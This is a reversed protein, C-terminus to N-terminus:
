HVESGERIEQTTTLPAVLDGDEAALLMGQSEVGRITAPELNAVVICRLGELEDQPVHEKLGAVLQREEEGIDVNLVYLKDADPHDEVNTVTGVRLDIAQFDDFTIMTADEKPEEDQSSDPDDQNALNLVEDEDLKQFLPNPEPLNTRPTPGAQVQDWSADHVTGPEGLMQWLKQASNPLFPATLIALARVVSLCHFLVTALREKDEIQWPAEQDIYRNGERALEMIARIPPKFRANELHDTVTEHLTQITEQIRQDAATTPGPDPVHGFNTQTLTLARHAFNGYAAVLEGNVKSLFDEWTWDADRTEPLNAALYYRVADTEFRELIEHVWIGVGRSKSFQEGSLNLYENAPVDYPLRLRPQGKSERADSYAMLIGPWLITHFPINDKALFYYHRTAEGDYSEEWFPKWANKDGQTEKAWQVSATFYGSFAEFWVYIRKGEYTPDNDIWPLGWEIDRTVPRDQLGEELWNQTFREVNGRWPHEEDNFWAELRNQLKSLLFFAHTTERFEIEADPNLTSRPDILENADLTKGCADCQDGRAEDFACHPCTGEVYRDPLFREAEPDYPQNMVREEIYGEDQLGQFITHVWKEHHKTSTRTFLDFDISLADLADVHRKHWHDVVQRPTLGEEEAKVTIPTGHEDSGSVMLVDNGQMRHYRAFIDPPLLSGAVHGLHLPGNAYPWAVGIFIRVM